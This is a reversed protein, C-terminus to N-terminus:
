RQRTQSMALYGALAVAQWANPRKRQMARAEHSSKTKGLFVRAHIINRQESAKLRKEPFPM